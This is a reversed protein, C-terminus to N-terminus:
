VVSKRQRWAERWLDTPAELQIEHVEAEAVSM